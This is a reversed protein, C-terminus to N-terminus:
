RQQLTLLGDLVHGAATVTQGLSATTATVTSGLLQGVSGVVAGGGGGLQAAVSGTVTGLASGAANGTGAVTRGLSSSVAGIVGSFGAPPPTGCAGCGSGGPGPVTGITTVQGTQAVLVPSVSQAVVRPAGAAQASAGSAGTTSLSPSSAAIAQGALAAVRRSQSTSPVAGRPASVIVAVPSSEQGVAPWGRFAVVASALIFLIAAGALLSGATGFGAIYARTARVKLM